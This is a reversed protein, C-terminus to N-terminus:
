AIGFTIELAKMIIVNTGSKGKPLLAALIQRGSVGRGSCMANNYGAGTVKEEGQSAFRVKVGLPPLHHLWGKKAERITKVRPVELANVSNM